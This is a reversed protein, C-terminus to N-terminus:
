RDSRKPSKAGHKPPPPSLHATLRDFYNDYVGVIDVHDPDLNWQIGVGEMFAIIEAALRGADVDARISGDAQGDKVIAATGERFEQYRAILDDRAAYDVDFAEVTMVVGLRSLNALSRDSVIVRAWRRLSNLREMGSVPAGPDVAAADLFDSIAAIERLLAEKTKFHHTIASRTVGIQQAIAELSTGRTGGTAFLELAATLLEDRRSPRGGRRGPAVAEGDVHGGASRQRVASTVGATMKASSDRPASGTM